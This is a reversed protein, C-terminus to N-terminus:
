YMILICALQSNNKCCISCEQDVKLLSQDQQKLINTKANNLIKKQFFPLIVYFFIGVNASIQYYTEYEWYFVIFFNTEIFFFFMSFGLQVCTMSFFHNMFVFSKQICTLRYSYSIFVNIYPMRQFKFQAKINKATKTKVARLM